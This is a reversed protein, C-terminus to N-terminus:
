LTGGPKEVRKNANFYFKQAEALYEENEYLPDGNFYKKLAPANELKPNVFFDDVIIPRASILNNDFLEKYRYWEPYDHSIEVLDRTSFKQPFLKIVEDVSSMENQSLLDCGIDKITRTQGNVPKIYDLFKLEHEPYNSLYENNRNLIDLSISAAPGNVLAVYTDLSILSFYKRINIRDAFFLYKILKLKDTTGTHKQIYYFVQVIKEINLFNYRNM